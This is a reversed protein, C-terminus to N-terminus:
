SHVFYSLDLVLRQVRLHCDEFDCFTPAYLVEILNSCFLFSYFINFRRPSNKVVFELLFIIEM